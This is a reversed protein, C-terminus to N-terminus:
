QPIDCSSMRSCFHMCDYSSAHACLFRLSIEPSVRRKPSTERGTRSRRVSSLSMTPKPTSAVHFDTNNDVFRPQSFVNQQKVGTRRVTRWTRRGRRGEKVYCKPDLTRTEGKEHLNIFSFWTFSRFISKWFFPFLVCKEPTRDPQCEVTRRYIGRGRKM